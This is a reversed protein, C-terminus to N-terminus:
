QLSLSLSPEPKKIYSFFSSVSFVLKVWFHRAESELQVEKRLQVKVMEEEEEVAEEEVVAAVM